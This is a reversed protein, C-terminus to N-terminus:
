NKFYIEDWYESNGYLTPIEISEGNLKRRILEIFIDTAQEYIGHVDRRIFSEYSVEGLRFFKSDKITILNVYGTGGCQGLIFDNHQKLGLKEEIKEILNAM